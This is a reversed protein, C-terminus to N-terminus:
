LEAVCVAQTGSAPIADIVGTYVTAGTLNFAQGPSLRFNSSTATAGLKIFVDDTNAPSATMFVAKRSANSAIVTFSVGPASPCSGTSNASSVSAAQTTVTNTIGTVATVTGVSALVGTGDSVQAVRLVGAGSLGNGASVAQGGLTNFDTLLANSANVNAGRENGAADRILGYLERRTSMRLARVSNETTTGVSVEDYQAGIGAVKSIAADNAYVADDILQLSTTQTQQETLTSAGSPLASSDVIVNMAGAGDTVTVPNTITTVATLTGSDVITNLSGAGDTVTVPNTITTITGSDVITNLSGAGDTVQVLNTTGPTTQDIGVRGLVNTGAPLANTISTVSTLTGSDVIVNLAGAGDTVTVPNTVTTITGSDVIVNLSGAGDTVTVTGTVPVTAGSADVQLLGGATVLATDTGDTLKTFQSKDTQAAATAAGSPLASSDVIVNVAGAGDTITVPNTITGVTTLTGSDVITNLAGAGDTVTVTGTVTATGQEHTKLYGSGDLAAPLIVKGDISALSTNGTDQKASTALTSVTGINATVTGSVPQTAQWFTGSVPQISSSGDVVLANGATVNAGRENGAADRIQAYPVRNSSMRPSAAHDETATGPAVDDFLYGGVTVSTTGKTFAANDNSTAAGGCGSLCNIDFAPQDLALAVPISLAMTQQGKAEISGGSSSIRLNLGQIWQAGAGTDADFSLPAVLTGALNSTALLGATTPIAAGTAGDSGVEVPVRTGSIATGNVKKVDVSTMTVPSPQAWTPLAFALVLLAPLISVRM